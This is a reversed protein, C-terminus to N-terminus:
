EEEEESGFGQWILSKWKETGDKKTKVSDVFRLMCSEKYWYRVTELMQSRSIEGAAILPDYGYDKMKVMQKDDMLIYIKHCTDWAIGACKDVADSVNRWADDWDDM